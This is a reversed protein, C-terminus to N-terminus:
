TRAWACIRLGPRRRVTACSNSPRLDFGCLPAHRDVEVDVLEFPAGPALLTAEVRAVDHPIGVPTV